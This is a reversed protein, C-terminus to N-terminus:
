FTRALTGTGRVVFLARTAEEVSLEIRNAEIWCPGNWGDGFGSSTLLTVTAVLKNHFGPNVDSHMLTHLEARWKYAGPLFEQANWGLPTADHMKRDTELKWGEVFLTNVPANPESGDASWTLSGGFGHYLIGM